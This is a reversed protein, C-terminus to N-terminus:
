HSVTITDQEYCYAFHSNTTAGTLSFSVKGHEGVKIEAGLTGSVSTTANNYFDGNIIYEIEYAKRLWTDITGDFKKSVSGSQRNLQVSYISYINWFHGGSAIECYFDIHPKYSGKVPIEVSYVRYSISRPTVERKSNNEKTELFIMRAQSESIGEIRAYRAVTEDFTMLESVTVGPAGDLDRLDITGHVSTDDSQAYVPPIAFAILCLCLAAICLRRRM